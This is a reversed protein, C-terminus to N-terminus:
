GMVCKILDKWLKTLQIENTVYVEDNYLIREYGYTLLRMNSFAYYRDIRSAYERLTEDPHKGMGKRQLIKLLHHYADQYNNVSQKRKLKMTFFITLWRYRMIYLIVFLLAFSLMFLIFSKGNKQNESSERKNTKDNEGSKSDVPVAQNEMIEKDSTEKIKGKDENTTYFDSLNSFGQTPEFPVWGIEPFYVEVWSHANANTVEYVNKGNSGEKIREGSTFGKVWRSPIDLTRLMVIMATSYNDCYGEKSDFLFQDVYDQDEGPVPVNSTQYVFGNKGFYQEIARTKDYRNHYAATIEEALAEVRDPLSSPLQTYTDAIAAPDVESADRLTEVSFSPHDYTIKYSKLNTNKNMQSQIEGTKEDLQFQVHKDANVENVGYPYVLKELMAHDSFELTAESQETEVKDSFTRLSIQGERQTQYNHSTSTKWGKGTYVDKTEIRWYHDKTDTATFVTSYDQVFSGGLQSDNEGYGVKQVTSSPDQMTKAAFEILPTPNTWKSDFVPTVYGILAALFVVSVLPVTWNKKWSLQVSEGEVEKVLNAMGLTIFAITFTRIAPIGADYVTFANLAILYLYTMFVFLYVQKTTVFWYDILYSMLWIFVLLLVNQFLPTVDYWQQDLLMRINFIIESYLQNIWSSGLFMQDLFFLWHIIFLFGFGKLLFSLLWSGNSWDIRGARSQHTSRVPQKEAETSTKIRRYISGREPRYGDRQPRYKGEGTSIESRRNIDESGPQYGWGETSIKEMQNINEQELQYGSSEPRGGRRIEARQDIHMRLFSIGFCYMTYMIFLTLSGKGSIREIPYIWELFLFFGSVYLISTSGWLMKHQKQFRM